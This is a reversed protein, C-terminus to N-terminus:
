GLCSQCASLMAAVALTAVVVMFRLAPRLASTSKLPPSPGPPSPPSPPSPPVSPISSTWIPTKLTSQYTVNVPISASLVTTVFVLTGNQLAATSPLFPSSGPSPFYTPSPAEPGRQLVTGSSSFFSAQLSLPRCPALSFSCPERTHFSKQCFSSQIHLLYM